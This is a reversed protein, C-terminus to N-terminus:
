SERNRVENVLQNYSFALKTSAFALASFLAQLPQAQKDDDLELGYAVLDMKILSMQM